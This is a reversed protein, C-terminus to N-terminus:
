NFKIARWGEDDVPEPIPKTWEYAFPVTENRRLRETIEEDEISAKTRLTQTLEFAKERGVLKIFEPLWGAKSTDRVLTGRRRFSSTRLEFTSRSRYPDLNAYMEFNGIMHHVHVSIEQPFHPTAGIKPRTRHNYCHIFPKHPNTVPTWYYRKLNVLSKGHQENQGMLGRRQFLLTSYYSANFGDEVFSSMEEPTSEQPSVLKRPLVLCGEYNYSQMHSLIPDAGSEIWHALTENQRGVHSPVDPISSASTSENYNSTKNWDQNFTLFEDSDMIFTHSLNQKNLARLCRTYFSDQRRMWITMSHERTHNFRDFLELKQKTWKGNRFYENGTYVKIKMGISRFKEVVGEVRTLSLPDAAIILHRLPLFTYHYALWEPLLQNDDKVLLCGSFTFPYQNSNDPLFSSEDGDNVHKNTANDSKRTPLGRPNTATGTTHNQSTPDDSNLDNSASLIFSDLDRGYNQHLLYHIVFTLPALIVLLKLINQKKSKKTSRM